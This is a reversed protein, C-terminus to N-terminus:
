SYGVLSKWLLAGCTHGVLTGRLLTRCSHGVLTKWLLMGCLTDQLLTGCSCTDWFPKPRSNGVLTKWLTDWLVTKYLLTWGARVGFNDLYFTPRDGM